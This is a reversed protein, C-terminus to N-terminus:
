KGAPLLVSRDEIEDTQQIIPELWKAFVALLSRSDGKM